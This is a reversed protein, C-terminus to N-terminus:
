HKWNILTAYASLILDSLMKRKVYGVIAVYIGAVILVWIM